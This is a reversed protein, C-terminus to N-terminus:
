RSLAQKALLFDPTRIGEDGDRACPRSPCVSSFASANKVCRCLPVCTLQIACLSVSARPLVQPRVSSHRVTKTASCSSLHAPHFDALSHPCAIARVWRPIEVRLLKVLAYFSLSLTVRSFM